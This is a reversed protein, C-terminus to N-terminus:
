GDRVRGKGSAHTPELALEWRRQHVAALGPVADANRRKSISSSWYPPRFLVWTCIRRIRFSRTPLCHVHNLFGHQSAQHRRQGRIASGLNDDRIAMRTQRRDAGSYCLPHCHLDAYRLLQM